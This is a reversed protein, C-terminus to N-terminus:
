SSGRGLSSILRSGGRNCSIYESTGAVGGPHAPLSSPPRSTVEGKAWIQFSSPRRSSRRFLLRLHSRIPYGQADSVSIYIHTRRLCLM